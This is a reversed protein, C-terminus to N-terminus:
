LPLLAHRIEIESGNSGRRHRNYFRTAEGIASDDRPVHTAKEGKRVQGGMDKIQKYTVRRNDSGSLWRAIRTRRM